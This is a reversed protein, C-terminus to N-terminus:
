SSLAQNQAEFIEKIGSEALDLLQNLEQRSFSGKEATGQVEIFEGNGNIIVNFDVDANSDELFNLDLVPNGDVIGVSVAAVSNILTSTNILGKEQMKKVALALAVYSGTIAATRTGADAEIVDCDVMITREGIAELNITSRLSRSILRQIEHTRGSLHHLERQNRETTACPLMRYEATLWGKGSRYLFQPVRESISINCLVKTNGAHILVSGMAHPTYHLDFKIPRLQNFERSDPRQATM